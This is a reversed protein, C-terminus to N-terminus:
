LGFSRLYAPFRALLFGYLVHGALMPRDHTYLPILPNVAKWLFGFWLYYWGLGIVVAILLIRLSSGHDRMALGFIAGLLGYIILYLALGIALLAAKRM